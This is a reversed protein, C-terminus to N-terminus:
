RVNINKFCIPRNNITGETTTQSRILKLNHMKPFFYFIVETLNSWILLLMIDSQETILSIVKIMHNHNCNAKKKKITYKCMTSKVPRRVIGDNQCVCVGPRIDQSLLKIAWYTHERQRGCDEAPSGPSSASPRLELSRVAGWSSRSWPGWWGPFSIAVGELRRAQSIGQVSSGPPSYDM